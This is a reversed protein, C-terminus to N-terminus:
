DSYPKKLDSESKCYELLRMLSRSLHIQVAKKIKDGDREIAADLIDMHEMNNTSPTSIEYTTFSQVRVSYVNIIRFISSIMPSDLYRWLMSHLRRDFVINDIHMDPYTQLNQLLQKLEILETKPILKVSLKAVTPELQKRILYIRTIEAVSPPRVVAQKGPSAEILNDHVLMELACKIPTRSVNYKKSLRVINLKEYIKLHGLLIDEKIACYVQQTLSGSDQVPLHSFLLEEM